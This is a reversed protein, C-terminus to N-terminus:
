YELKVEFTIRKSLGKKDICQLHHVGESVQTFSNNVVPKLDLYLSVNDTDDYSKCFIKIVRFNAPILNNFIFIENESPFIIEPPM